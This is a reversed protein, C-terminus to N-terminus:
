VKEFLIGNFIRETYFPCANLCLLHKASQSLVLWVDLPYFIVQFHFIYCYFFIKLNKVVLKRLIFMTLFDIKKFVIVKWMPNIFLKPILNLKEGVTLWMISSFKLVADSFRKLSTKENWFKISVKDSRKLIRLYSRM